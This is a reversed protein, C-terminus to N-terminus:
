KEEGRVDKIIQTILNKVNEKIEPTVVDDHWYFLKVLEKSKEDVYKWDIEPKQQIILSRIQEYAKDAMGKKFLSRKPHYSSFAYYFEDMWDLLEKREDSMKHSRKKIRIVGVSRVVLKAKISCGTKTFVTFISRIM